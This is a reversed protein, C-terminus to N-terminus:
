QNCASHPKKIAQSIILGQVDQVLYETQCLSVELLFNNKVHDLMHIWFGCNKM